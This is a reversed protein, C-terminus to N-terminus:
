YHVNVVNMFFFSFKKAKQALSFLESEVGHRWLHIALFFFSFSLFKEMLKKKNFLFFTFFFHPISNSLWKIYQTQSIIFLFGDHVVMLSM